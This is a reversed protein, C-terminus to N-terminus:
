KPEKRVDIFSHAKRDIQVYRQNKKSDFGKDGCVDVLKGPIDELLPIFFPSEHRNGHVGRFALITGDDSDIALIVKFCDRKKIKKGIRKIYSYSATTLKIGTGDVTVRHRSGLLEVLRRLLFKFWRPPFRKLFKNL